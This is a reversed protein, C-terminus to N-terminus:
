RLSSKSIPLGNKYNQVLIIKGTEDFINLNGNGNKFSGTNLFNGNKDLCSIIKLLGGKSYYRETWLTGGPYFHRYIGDLLGESYFYEAKLTGNQYYERWQGYTVTDRSFGTKKLGGGPYYWRIEGNYKGHQLDFVGQQMLNGSSDYNCLHYVSDKNGDLGQLLQFKLKGNPFFMKNKIQPDGCYFLHMRKGESYSLEASKLFYNCALSLNGNAVEAMGLYYNALENAPNIEIAKLFNNQAEEFKKQSYFCLGRFYWADGYDPIIEIAMNFDSFAAEPNNMAIKARGRQSLAIAKEFGNNGSYNIASTFDDVAEKFKAMLFYNLGRNLFAKSNRGKIKLSKNLWLLSGELDNLERLSIALNVMALYSGPNLNLAMQYDAMSGKFDKKSFRASGRNIFALDSKPYKEIVNTFLSIGNDWIKTQRYTYFGYIIFLFCVVGLVLAQTYKKVAEQYLRSFLIAIGVSSVYINRDAFAADGVPFIQLTFILAAIFFGIGFNIQRSRYKKVMWALLLFLGIAAFLFLLYYKPLLGPPYQYPHFASLNYPIVSKLFYNIISHSVLQAREFGSYSFSTFNEDNSKLAWISFFGVGLSIVFFISKETLALIDQKRQFYYDLLVIIFSLSVALLKSFCSVLFFLIAFYFYIKKFGSKIYKVYHIISLLYFFSYLLDKREIVWTVSEVRLPNLSWFLAGLFAARKDHILQGIFVFVLFTNLVHLILNDLHFVLANLGFFHYEIAYSLFTVPQYIGEYVSGFINKIIHEISLNKVLYNNTLMWKDDWNTFDCFLSPFFSSFVAFCIIFFVLVSKQRASLKNLFNTM